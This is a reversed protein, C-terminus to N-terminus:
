WGRDQDGKWAAASRRCYIERKLHGEERAFRPCVAYRVDIVRYYFKYGSIDTPQPLNGKYSGNTIIFANVRILNDRLEKYKALTHAFEFIPSSEAIENVYDNYVAKRFFNTIRTAARDIESKPINPINDEPYYISIFLDVTEYNDSVAYGNIKHQKKTGLDKEDFVINANETDGSDCLMDVALQTFSQEQTDGEENALQRAAVDQVLSKYYKNLDNM